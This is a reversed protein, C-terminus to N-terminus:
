GSAYELLTLWRVCCCPIRQSRFCLNIAGISWGRLLLLLQTCHPHQQLQFSQCLTNNCSCVRVSHQQFHISLRQKWQRLVARMVWRLKAVLGSVLM